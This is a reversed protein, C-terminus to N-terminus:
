PCLTHLVGLTSEAIPGWDFRSTQKAIAAASAQLQGTTLNQLCQQLDAATSGYRIDAGAFTEDLFVWDSTIAALGAGMVDFATGTTLMGQPEFPLILADFARM